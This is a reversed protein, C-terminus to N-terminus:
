RNKATRSGFLRNKTRVLTDYYRAFLRKGVGADEPVWGTTRATVQGADIRQYAYVAISKRTVGAPLSMKRYGHYTHDDTLMLIARNFLPAVARPEDAPHAKVLLHGGYEDRWNPNLYVLLNVTRLWDEHLPHINFDVHLDLFSGDGGQHFGGGHYAADVFLDHRTVTSLFKAFEPSTIASHFRASAPGNAEVSSLEHKDGFVYDRSSPMADISPFEELLEQALEPALFDDMVVMPFPEASEYEHALEEARELYRPNIASRTSTAEGAM